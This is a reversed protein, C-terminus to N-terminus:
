SQTHYFHSNNEITEDIDDDTRNAQLLAFIEYVISQAEDLVKKAKDLENFADNMKDLANEVDDLIDLMLVRRMENRKDAEM